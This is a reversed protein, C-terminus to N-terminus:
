LITSIGELAQVRKILLVSEGSKLRLLRTVEGPARIRKVELITNEPAHPEGVDPVLKLFRYQAHAAHHTAVFTGKGQRRVLVNEIALEDIAKRVTGQSVKFRTALEMESPILEGPKWEGSQLGQVLLEKIQQYLPSFTPSAGFHRADPDYLLSPSTFNMSMSKLM